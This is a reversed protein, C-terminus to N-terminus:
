DEQVNLAGVDFYPQDGVAVAVSAGLSGFYLLNGGGSADYIGVDTVTGWNATAVPFVIKAVNDTEGQTGASPDTWTSDTTDVSARAYSGGSVETGGTGDEGPATTFLAIYLTGPQSFSTSRFIHNLLGEELYNAKGAM